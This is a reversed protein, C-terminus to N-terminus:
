EVEPIIDGTRRAGGDNIEWLQIMDWRDTMGFGSSASRERHQRLHVCDLKRRRPMVRSHRKIDNRVRYPANDVHRM